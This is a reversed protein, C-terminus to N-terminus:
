LAPHLPLVCLASDGEPSTRLEIGPLNHPTTLWALGSPPLPESAFSWSSLVGAESGEHFLLTGESPPQQHAGSIPIVRMLHRRVNGVSQLRSVIEQGLYCGKHFDVAFHDLGTEAPFPQESLEAPFAPRGAAVRLAEAETTNLFRPPAPATALVTSADSPLDYGPLGFRNSPLIPFDAPLPPPTTSDEPPLFHWHSVAPRVEIQVDDAVLYRDLREVLPEELEKQVELFFVDGDAECAVRCWLLAIIKGKPTLACAPLVAGPTLKRLDNSLQGNLFRRADSGSVCLDSSPPLPVM